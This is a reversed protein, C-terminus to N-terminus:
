WAKRICFAREGKTMVAGGRVGELMKFDLSQCTANDQLMKQKLYGPDPVNADSSM